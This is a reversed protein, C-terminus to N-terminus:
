ECIVFFFFFFSLSSKPMFEILILQLLIKHHVGFFHWSSIEYPCPLLVLIGCRLHIIQFFAAQKYESKPCQFLSNHKQINTIMFCFFVIEVNIFNAQSAQLNSANIMGYLYLIWKGFHFLLLSIKGNISQSLVMYISLRPLTMALCSKKWSSLVHISQIRLDLLFLPGSIIVM